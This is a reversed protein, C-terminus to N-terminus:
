GVDTHGIQGPLNGRVATECGGCQLLLMYKSSSLCASTGPFRERSVNVLCYSLLPNIKYGTWEEGFGQPISRLSSTVLRVQGPEELPFEMMPKGLAPRSPVRQDWLPLPLAPLRETGQHQLNSLHLLNWHLPKIVTNAHSAGVPGVGVSCHAPPRLLM